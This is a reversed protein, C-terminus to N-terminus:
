KVRIIERVTFLNPVDLGMAKYLQPPVSIDALYLVGVATRAHDQLLGIKPLALTMTATARICPERIEGTNADLGSPLDLSLIPIGDLAGRNALRILKAATGRPAGKLSYGILADIVMDADPLFDPEKHHSIPVRLQRLIGLQHAPVGNFENESKSTLVHVDLGWNHLRRAAVLGGGGNGGSGALIIIRKGEIRGNLLEDRTLVALSRGANEMMQILDIHYVEVMLRDVERMEKTTLVPIKADLM